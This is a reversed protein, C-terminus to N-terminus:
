GTATWATGTQVTPSTGGPAPAAARPGHEGGSSTPWASGYRAAALRAHYSPGPRAAASGAAGAGPRLRALGRAKQPVLPTLPHLGPPRRGVWFAGKRPTVGIITATLRAQERRARRSTAPGALWGISGMAPTDFAVDGVLWRGSAAARSDGLATRRQRTRQLQAAADVGAIGPAGTVGAAMAPAASGGTELAPSDDHPDFSVGLAVALRVSCLLIVPALAVDYLVTPPLVQAVTARTVEPTDLALTLVASLAEGLAAMAAAAAVTLVASHRLVFRLRGSGYGILCLVLAYQGVLQSAPPALDLALGAGFGAVVGSAPGGTMGIAIVCLLVLDPTGSGPLALGNVITLQVLLAVALALAAALKRAM